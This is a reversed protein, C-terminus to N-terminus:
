KVGPSVVSGGWTVVAGNPTTWLKSENTSAGVGSNFTNVANARTQVSGSSFNNVASVLTQNYNSIGYNINRQDKPDDFFSGAWSLKYDGARLQAYGGGIQLVLPPFGGATGVYGYHANGFDEVSMLQSGFFYYGRGTPSNTEKTLYDWPGGKQVLSKFEMYGQPSSGLHNNQAYAANMNMMLNDNTQYYTGTNWTDIGTMGAGNAWIYSALGTPDKKNIPNGEAYSYSNLSQPNQLNQKGWFVPDQSLFQGRNAEYYRANLYSLNSEEDYYEGIYERQTTDEGSEVRKSGFPYYDLVRVVDGEANTVATVSGLHDPHAYTTTATTSAGTGEITAILVGQQTFIHKTPTTGNTEYHSFPYTTTATNTAKWTRARSHDYGYTTTALGTGSMTLRNHYDWAYTTNTAKTLNGNTDYEYHTGAVTTPAHPNAYGPANYSYPGQASLTLNGIANYAYNIILPTTSAATTSANTLRNLSDYTYVITKGAGIDGSDNLTTINGAPDYTFTLNQAIEVYTTGPATPALYFATSTAWPGDLGDQDWFKIRWYYLTSSALTTGSYPIPAIRAGNATTSALATMGTDWDAFTFDSTSAVQLRYDTAYGATDDDSFVASFQPVLNTEYAAGPKGNTLLVLPANPSYNVASHEVVLTPDNATGTQDAAYFNLGSEVAGSHSPSSDDLDYDSRLGFWTLGTANIKSLGAANLAFDSYASM